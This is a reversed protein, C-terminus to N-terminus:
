FEVLPQPIRQSDCWTSIFDFILAAPRSNLAPFSADDGRKEDWWKFSFWKLLSWCVGWRGCLRKVFLVLWGVVLLESRRFVLGCRVFECWGLLAALRCSPSSLCVLVFFRHSSVTSRPFQIEKDQADASGGWSKWRIGLGWDTNNAGNLMSVLGIIWEGMRLFRFHRSWLLFFAVDIEVICIGIMGFRHFERLCGCVSGCIWLDVSWCIWVVSLSLDFDFLSLYVLALATSLSDSLVFGGVGDICKGNAFFFSCVLPPDVWVFDCSWMM